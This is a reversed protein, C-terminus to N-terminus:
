YAHTIHLDTTCINTFATILILWDICLSLPKHITSSHFNYSNSRRLGRLICYIIMQGRIFLFELFGMLLNGEVTGIRNLVYRYENYNPPRIKIHKQQQWIGFLSCSLSPPAHLCPAHPCPPSPLHPHPSTPSPISPSCFPVQYVSCSRFRFNPLASRVHVIYPRYISKQYINEFHYLIM